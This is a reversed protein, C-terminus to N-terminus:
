DVNCLRQHLEKLYELNRLEFKRIKNIVYFSFLLGIPYGILLGIISEKNKMVEIFPKYEYYVHISLIIMLVLIPLLVIYSKSYKGLLWKTLLTIRQEIWEKLPINFENNQLKNFSLLSAFYAFTTFLCLLLNNIQYILDGPRNLLTIMLFVILGACIILDITFIFLFKNIINRSKVKFIHDLEEKSKLKIESDINQWINQFENTKM